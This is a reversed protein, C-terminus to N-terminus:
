TSLLLVTIARVSNKEQSWKEFGKRLIWDIGSLLSDSLDNELGIDRTLGTLDFDERIQDYPPKKTIFDPFPYLWEKARRELSSAELYAVHDLTYWSISSSM